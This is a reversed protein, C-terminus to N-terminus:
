KIFVKYTKNEIRIIYLGPSLHRAGIIYSRGLVDYISNINNFLINNQMNIDEIDTVINDNMNKNRKPANSGFHNIYLSSVNIILNNSSQKGKLLIGRYPPLLVDNEENYVNHNFTIM